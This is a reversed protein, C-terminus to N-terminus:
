LSIFQINNAQCFIAAIMSQWIMSLIFLQARHLSYLFLKIYHERIATETVFAQVKALWSNSIIIYYVEWYKYVHVWSARLTINHTRKIQTFINQTQSKTRIPTPTNTLKNVNYWFLLLVVTKNSYIGGVKFIYRIQNSNYIIVKEKDCKGRLIWM